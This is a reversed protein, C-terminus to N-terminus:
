VKRVTGASLGKERLAVFFAALLHPRLESIRKAGLVPLVHLNLNSRYNVATTPALRPHSARWHQVVEAFTPDGTVGAQARLRLTREVKVAERASTASGSLQVRKGTIPDRGAQVVVRWRGGRKAIM